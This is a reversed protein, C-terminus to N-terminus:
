SVSKFITTKEDSYILKYDKLEKLYTVLSSDTKCIVMDFNFKNMEDKIDSSIKSIDMYDWLINKSFIDARGDIFVPIGKYILYGGWDYSNLLRQPNEDKLVQIAEDSPYNSNDIPNAMANQISLPLLSTILIAIVTFPIILLNNYKPKWEPIYKLFIPTVAIIFLIVFRVSELTLYTFALMIALDYFEIDTKIIFLTLIVLGLIAFILLGLVTKLDPSHWEAIISLLQKDAMNVYPYLIMKFGNPNILQILISLIFNISLVKIKALPLKSSKIRFIQFDFISTVIAVAILGYALTASGGHINVWILSIIPLLWVLKTDERRYKDLIYLTCILAIYSFLHPRPTANGSLLLISITFWITALPINKYLNAKNKIFLFGLLFTTVVSVVVINGVNGFVVYVLYYIVESLWEHAYWQLNHSIGYWSFIDTMPVVKNNVIYEGAKIHWFYDNEQISKTCLLVNMLVLGVIFLINLIKDKDKDKTIDNM